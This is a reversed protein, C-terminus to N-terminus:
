TRPHARLWDRFARLATDQGSQGAMTLFPLLDKPRLGPFAVSAGIPAYRGDAQREYMGLSVGDFHWLERVGMAAYIRERDIAHHTVDIEIVLDPPPDIRLDANRKRALARVDRLYYCEDPELGKALDERTFTTSGLGEVAVDWELALLEVLRGATKKWWEHEPSTTKIELRGTDYTLLLHQGELEAGLREYTEWSIGELVVREGGRAAPVLHTALAM